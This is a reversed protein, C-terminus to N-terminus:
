GLTRQTTRPVRLAHLLRNLAVFTKGRRSKAACLVALLCLVFVIRLTGRWRTWWLLALTRLLDRKRRRGHRLYPVSSSHHHARIPPRAPSRADSSSSSFPYSFTVPYGWFPNLVSTPILSPIRHLYRDQEMTQIHNSPEDESTCSSDPPTPENSSEAPTDPKVFDLLPNELELLSALDGGYDQPLAACGFYSLLEKTSPFFIRSLAAEPLLRKVISWMGSHAWTHNVMCVVGFMGPYRPSVERTCYSLMEPNFNRMTAGSVDILVAYQLVPWDGDGIAANLQLLNIRLCEMWWLVEDRLTNGSPLPDRSRLVIIPRGQPDKCTSPLLRFFPKIEPGPRRPVTSLRWRLTDELVKSTPDTEFSNRRLIRFITQRDDIWEQAWQVDEQSIDLEAALSPLYQNRLESQLQLVDASYSNYESQLLEYNKALTAEM